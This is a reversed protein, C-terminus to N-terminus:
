GEESTEDNDPIDGALIREVDGDDGYMFTFSRNNTGALEWRTHLLELCGQRCSWACQACFTCRNAHYRLVFRKAKKDLVILELANSPCDKVCLACGICHEGNWNLLGRLREPAERREFPYNETAPNRFLSTTVDILMAGLKM